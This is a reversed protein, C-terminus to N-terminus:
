DPRYSYVGAFRAGRKHGDLTATHVLVNWGYVSCGDTPVPGAPEGRGKFYGTVVKRITACRAGTIKLRSFRYTGGATSHHYSFAACAKTRAAAATPSPIGSFATLAAAALLVVALLQSRPTRRVAQTKRAM